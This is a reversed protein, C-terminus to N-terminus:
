DSNIIQQTLQNLYKKYYELNEKIEAVKNLKGLRKYEIMRDLALHVFGFITERKLLLEFKSQEHNQDQNQDQNQDHNVAKGEKLYTYTRNSENITHKEGSLKMDEILHDILKVLQPNAPELRLYDLCLRSGYEYYFINFTATAEGKYVTVTKTHKTYHENIRFGLLNAYTKWWDFAKFQFNGKINRYIVVQM